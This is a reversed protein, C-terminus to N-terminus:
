SAVIDSVQVQIEVDTYNPVDAGLEDGVADMAHHFEELTEFHLHAVCVWQPESGREEGSVGRDIELKVLGLGGLLRRAFPVHRELYYDFDFRSGPTVPYLFSARIV